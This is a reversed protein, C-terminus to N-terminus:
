RDLTEYWAQACAGLRVLGLKLAEKDVRDSLPIAATAITKLGEYRALSVTRTLLALQDAVVIHWGLVSNDESKGQAKQREREHHVALLYGTKVNESV